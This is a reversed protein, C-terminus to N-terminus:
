DGVYGDKRGKDVIIEFVYGDSLSVNNMYFNRINTSYTNILEINLSVVEKLKMEFFM